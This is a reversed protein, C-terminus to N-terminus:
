YLAPRVHPVDSDLVLESLPQVSGGSGGTVLAAQVTAGETALEVYRAAEPLAASLGMGPRLSVQVPELQRGRADRTLVTLESVRAVGALVVRKPGPGVVAAARSSVPESVVGHSLGQPTVARLTGSVPHDSDLRVGLAGEGEAGALVRSLDLVATSGPAVVLEELGSPAFESRSTVLRVAVRAEDAGDNAVVLTREGTGAGVGLLYGTRTPATQAALWDQTVAGGALDESRDVVWAGLRGRSVQVRLTLEERQPVLRALDLRVLRQGRVTLGRLRPVEIEGTPGLVTIDAVAPGGDPNVLELVSSHEAGAGVGTFWTQAQPTVCSTAADRATRGAVLGPATTDEGILVAQAPEDIELTRAAELELEDTEEHRLRVVGAAEPDALAASIVRGGPLAPPCVLTSRTLPASSPPRGPEETPTPHVTALAAVTLAPVLFALLTTSSITRERPVAVRRRTGGAPRPDQQSM